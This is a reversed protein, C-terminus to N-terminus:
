EGINENALEEMGCTGMNFRMYFRQNIREWPTGPEQCSSIESGPSRCIGGSGRDVKNYRSLYVMDLLKSLRLYSHIALGISTRNQQCGSVQYTFAFNGDFTNRCNIPKVQKRFLTEYETNGGINRLRELLEMSDEGQNKSECATDRYQLVNPTRYQMERVTYCNGSRSFPTCPLRDM